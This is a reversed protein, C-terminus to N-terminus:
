SRRRLLVGMWLWFLPAAIAGGVTMGLTVASAQAGLAGFFGFLMAAAGIFGFAALPRSMRGRWLLLAVVGLYVGMAGLGMLHLPDTAAVSVPFPQAPDIPRGLVARTFAIPFLSAMTTSFASALGITMAFFSWAEGLGRVLWHVAVVALLSWVGVLAALLGVIEMGVEDQGGRALGYYAAVALWSTLALLIAALGGTRVFSRDSVAACSVREYWGSM